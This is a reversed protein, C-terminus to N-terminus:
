LVRLRTARSPLIPAPSGEIIATFVKRSVRREM